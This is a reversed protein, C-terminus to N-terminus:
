SAQCSIPKTLQQRAIEIMLNRGIAEERVVDRLDLCIVQWLIALIGSGAFIVAAFLECIKRLYWSIIDTQIAIFQPALVTLKFWM